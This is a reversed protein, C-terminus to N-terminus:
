IKNGMIGGVEFLTTAFKITRGPHIPDVLEQPAVGTVASAPPPQELGGQADPYFTTATAVRGTPTPRASCASTNTQQVVRGLNKKKLKYFM